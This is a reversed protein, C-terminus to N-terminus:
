TGDSIEKTNKYLMKNLQAFERFLIKAQDNYAEAAEEATHYTGVTIHKGDHTIYARWRKIRRPDTRLSVGKYGSTSDKRLKSNQANQHKNAIRLNSRKNDLTDGNIHDVSKKTNLLFQHLRGAASVIYGNSEAWRFHKIKKLNKAHIMFIKNSSTTVYVTDNEIKFFNFEEKAYQGKNNRKRM